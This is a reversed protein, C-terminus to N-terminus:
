ARMGEGVAAFVKAVPVPMTPPVRGRGAVTVVNEALERLTSYTDTLIYREGDKGREAAALHGQVVGDVFVLGLGGPM